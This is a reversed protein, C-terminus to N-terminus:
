RQLRQRRANTLRLFDAWSLKAIPQGARIRRNAEALMTGRRATLYNPSPTGIVLARTNGNVHDQYVGGAQALRERVEHRPVRLTGTFAVHLNRLSRPTPPEHGRPRLADLMGTADQFRRGRPGVSRVLAETLDPKLGLGRIGRVSTGWSPTIDGQILGITLLALQYLDDSPYWRHRSRHELSSPVFSSAFDGAYGPRGGLGHRAIGFDGLKLTGSPGVFVNDPKIDRHTAGMGHLKELVGLLGKLERRASSESWPDGGGQFWDWVTCEELEFVLIFRMVRRLGTGSAHPFSDLLRVVREEGRMLQGFYSEGHWTTGDAAVKLCVPMKPNDRGNLLWGEYAQAFSGEGLPAGVRYRRSSDGSVLVQNARLLGM